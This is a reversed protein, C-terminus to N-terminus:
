RLNRERVQIKANAGESVLWPLNESDLFGRSTHNKKTTTTPEATQAACCEGLDPNVVGPQTSAAFIQTQPGWSTESHHWWLLSFFFVFFCPQSCVPASAQHFSHPSTITFFFLLFRVSDYVVLLKCVPFVWMELLSFPFSGGQSWKADSQPTTEERGGAVVVEWWNCHCGANFHCIRLGWRLCYDLMLRRQQRGGIFCSKRVPSKWLDWGRKPRRKGWDESRATPAGGRRRLCRHEGEGLAFLTLVAGHLWWCEEIAVTHKHSVRLLHTRTNQKHTPLPSGVRGRVM